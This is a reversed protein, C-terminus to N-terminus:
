DRNALLQEEVYKEGTPTIQWAKQKDKQEAAEILHARRICKGIVDSPNKPRPLRAKSLTDMIEARTVSEQGSRLFYYAVAVFQDLQSRVNLSALFESAQMRAVIASGPLDRGESTAPTEEILKRFIVEFAISKYPEEVDQTIEIAETIRNKIEERNM